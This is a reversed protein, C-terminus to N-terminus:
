VRWEIRKRLDFLIFCVVLILATSANNFSLFLGKVNGVIFCIALILLISRATIKDKRQLRDYVMKAGVALIIGMAAAYVIGGLWVDNVFGIDSSAGLSSGLIITSGSGFLLTLLNDPLRYVESDSFYSFTSYTASSEFGVVSLIDYLADRIWITHQTSPAYEIFALMAVIASAFVLIGKILGKKRARVFSLGIYGIVIVVLSTRANVVAAPILALSIVLSWFTGKELWRFFAFLSAMALAIPSSYQLNSALGYSRFGWEEFFDGTSTGSAVIMQIFREHVGENFLALYVLAAEVVAAGVLLMLFGELGVGHKRLHVTLSFAIPVVEIIWHAFSSAGSITEGNLTAVLVLYLGFAMLLLETCVFRGDFSRNLALYIWAVYAIPLLVSFSGLLPPDFIFCWIVAILCLRHFISLSGSACSARKKGEALCCYASETM